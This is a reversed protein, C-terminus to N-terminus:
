QLAERDTIPGQRPQEIAEDDTQKQPYADLVDDINFVSESDPTKLVLSKVALIAHLRNDIFVATHMPYWTKSFREWKEYFVEITGAKNIVVFKVPFFTDKEIWLGSFPEGKEQPAGIVYCITDRYRTMGVTQTDIGLGALRTIMAEYDRGILVDSYHDQPEKEMSVIVGDITKVYRNRAEISFGTSPGSILESRFRDPFAYILREEFETVPMGTDAYNIIKKTQLAEIGVPQKIKEIVLYLLHPAKPVFAEGAQCLLMLSLSVLICVRIKKM